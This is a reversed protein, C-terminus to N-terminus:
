QSSSVPHSTFVTSTATHKDWHAQRLMAAFIMHQTQRLIDIESNIWHRFSNLLIERLEQKQGFGSWPHSTDCLHLESKHMFWPLASSANFPAISTSGHKVAHENRANPIYNTQALLESLWKLSMRIPERVFPFRRYIHNELGQSFDSGCTAHGNDQHLDGQRIRNLVRTSYQLGCSRSNNDSGGCM